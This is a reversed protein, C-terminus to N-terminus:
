ITKEEDLIKKIEHARATWTNDIAFQRMDETNVNYDGKLVNQTFSSMEEYSSYLSVRKGFKETESYRSALIPKGAYAYEYLKVPNVSEILDNVVFPMILANSKNMVGLIKDHSISGKYILRPHNPFKQTRMPGFMVINLEPYQGLLRLLNSFDIWESITGIYVLSNDPIEVDPTSAPYSTIKDTIANNIVAMSRKLDYKRKLKNGLSEASVFIYDAEEMLRKELTEMYHCYRPYKAMYPFEAYDDMCDYIIKLHSPLKSPRVLNWIVPDTVWIYDYSSWDISNISWILRNISYTMKIPIFSIRELPWDRFGKINLNGEKRQPNLNRGFHNSKRYYVDVMYNKALEEALFQPRQKIWGWSIHM